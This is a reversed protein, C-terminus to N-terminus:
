ICRSINSERTPQGGHDQIPIGTWEGVEEERGPQVERAPQADGRTQLTQIQTAPETATAAHTTTDAAPSCGPGASWSASRPRSSAARREHHTQQSIHLYTHTNLPISPLTTASSRRLHHELHDPSSRQINRPVVLPRAATM